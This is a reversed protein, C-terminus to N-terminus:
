FGGLDLHMRLPSEMSEVLWRLFRAGDAGDIIRHDYSLSLPLMLRQETNGNRIVPQMTARSVGLIAVQPHYIIPTFNAGGIGGLNSITFNGGKLEGPDIKKNRARWALDAIERAIMTISKQDANRLVPVLLGRETDVAIGINIYKKYVIEKKEMDLSANFRSFQKLATAVIKIILSTISLKVDRKQLEASYEQRFEELSTIDASDFQTVHPVTNWATHMSDATIARVKSLSERSIEGWKSFDPLPPQAAAPAAPAERKEEMRKRVYNRVDDSVIRGEPGSGKVDTIDVGMERAERRVSPAAPVLVPEKMAPEELPRPPKQKEEGKQPRSPKEEKRGATEKQPKEEKEQEKRAEEEKEAKQQEEQKKQEEEKQEKEKEEEAKKKEKSEPKKEKEPEAKEESEKGGESEIILLTQSVSVVDGESVNIKTVKGESTSPVEFSAKDTEIEMIPQEKKVRDGEKVLIKVVEGSDVNESIEPLKIEETM